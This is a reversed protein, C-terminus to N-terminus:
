ELAERLSALWGRGPGGRAEIRARRTNGTIELHISLDAQPLSGRAREPWEIVALATEDLTEGFGSNLWEASDNFRFLDFHYL